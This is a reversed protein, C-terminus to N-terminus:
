SQRVAEIHLTVRVRDGVVAGGTELLANWRLGFDKRNLETTATFAAVEKGYLGVTRGDFETDLVVERTIDRITLDGYVKWRDDEVHEVRTSRFTMQPFREANFFDDSRLHADRQPDGTDISAVDISAEVRSNAPNAEDVTLTGSLSRFRGKVTAIVMHKVSFEAISHVPDITWTSIAAPATTM